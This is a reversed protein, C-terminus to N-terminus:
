VKRGVNALVGLGMLSFVMASGGYSILPIPVGTLPIIRTMAAVNILFQLGLWSTVGVALLRGLLDPSGRAYEFGKYIM